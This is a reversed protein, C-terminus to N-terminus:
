GNHDGENLLDLYEKRVEKVDKHYKEMPAIVQEVMDRLEKVQEETFMCGKSVCGFDIIHQKARDFARGKGSKRARIEAFLEDRYRSKGNWALAQEIMLLEEEGIRYDM